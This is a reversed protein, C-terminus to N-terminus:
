LCSSTQKLVIEDSFLYVAFLKSHVNNQEVISVIVVFAFAIDQTLLLLLPKTISKFSALQNTRVKSHYCRTDLDHRCFKQICHFRKFPVTPLHEKVQKSLMFHFSDDEQAAINM